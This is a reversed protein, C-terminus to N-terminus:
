KFLISPFLEIKIFLYNLHSVKIHVMWVSWSLMTKLYFLIFYNNM